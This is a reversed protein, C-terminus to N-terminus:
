AIVKTIREDPDCLIRPKRDRHRVVKPVASLTELILYSQKLAIYSVQTRIDPADCFSSLLELCCNRQISVVLSVKATASEHKACSM